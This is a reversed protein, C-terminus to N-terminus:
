KGKGLLLRGSGKGVQGHLSITGGAARGAEGAKITTRRAPRTAVHKAKFAMVLKHESEFM